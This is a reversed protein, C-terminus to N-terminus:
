NIEQFDFNTQMPHRVAIRWIWAVFEDRTMALKAANCTRCCPVVNGAIYGRTPDLRDIGSYIFSGNGKKHKVVNSPPAGCYHCTQSFLRLAYATSLRWQLGRQAANRRYVALAINKAAEGLPKRRNCGCSTTQGAVLSSAHRVVESGCDCRCVWKSRHKASSGARALVVLKGFRRETLNRVFLDTMLCGCSRTDGCRLSKWRVAVENGCDCQCEAILHQSKDLGAKGLVVLRGFRAGVFGPKKAVTM